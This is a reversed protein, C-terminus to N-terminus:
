RTSQRLLIDDKNHLDRHNFGNGAVCDDDILDDEVDMDATTTGITMGSSGRNSMIEEYVPEETAFGGAQYQNYYALQSQSNSVGPHHHHYAATRYHEDGFQQQRQQQQMHHHHQQQQQQYRLMYRRQDDEDEIGGDRMYENLEDDMTSYSHSKKKYSPYVMVDTSKSAGLDGSQGNGHRSRKASKGTWYFYEQPKVDPGGHPPPPLTSPPGPIHLHRPSASSSASSSLSSPQQQHHQKSKKKKRDYYLYKEDM